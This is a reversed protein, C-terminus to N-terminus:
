LPGCPRNSVFGFSDDFSPEVIERFVFRWRQDMKARFFCLLPEKHPHFVRDCISATLLKRKQSYIRRLTTEITGQTPVHWSRSNHVGSGELPLEHVRTPTAEDPRRMSKAEGHLRKDCVSWQRYNSMSELRVLRRVM